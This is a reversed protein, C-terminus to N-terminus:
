EGSARIIMYKVTGDVTDNSLIPVYINIGRQANDPYSFSMAEGPNPSKFVTAGSINKFDLAIRVTGMNVIKYDGIPLSLNLTFVFNNQKQSTGSM